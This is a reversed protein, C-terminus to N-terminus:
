SSKGNDRTQVSKQLTENFELLEGHMEAVQFINKKLAFWFCTQNFIM